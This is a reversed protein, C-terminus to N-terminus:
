DSTHNYHVINSRYVAPKNAIRGKHSFFLPFFVFYDDQISTKSNRGCSPMTIERPADGVPISSGDLIRVLVDCTRFFLCTCHVVTSFVMVSYVPGYEMCVQNWVSNLNSYLDVYVAAWKLNRTEVPRFLQFLSVHIYANGIRALDPIWLTGVSAGTCRFIALFGGGVSALLLEM